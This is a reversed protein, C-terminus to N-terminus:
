HRQLPRGPSDGLTLASAPQSAGSQELEEGGSAAALFSLSRADRVAARVRENAAARLQECEALAIRLEELEIENLM